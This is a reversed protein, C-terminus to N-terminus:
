LLKDKEFEISCSFTGFELSPEGNEMIENKYKTVLGEYSPIPFVYGNNALDAFFDSYSVVMKSVMSSNFSLGDLDPFPELDGNNSVSFATFSPVVVVCDNVFSTNNVVNKYYEDNRYADDDYEDNSVLYLGIELDIQNINRYSNNRIIHELYNLILQVVNSSAAKYNDIDSRAIRIQFDGPGMAAYEKDAVTQLKNKLKILEDKKM